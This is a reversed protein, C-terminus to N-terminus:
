ENSDCPGCTAQQWTIFMHHPPLLDNM